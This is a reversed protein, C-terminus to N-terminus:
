ETVKLGFTKGGIKCGPNAMLEVAKVLKSDLHGQSFLSELVM